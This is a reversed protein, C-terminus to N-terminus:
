SITGAKRENWIGLNKDVLIGPRLHRLLLETRFVVSQDTLILLQRRLCRQVLPLVIFIPFLPYRQERVHLGPLFLAQLKIRCYECSKHLLHDDTPRLLINLHHIHQPISRLIPNIPYPSQGHGKEEKKPAM